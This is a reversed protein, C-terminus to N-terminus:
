DSHGGWRPKLLALLRRRQDAEVGFSLMLFGAFAGAIALYLLTSPWTTRGVLEVRGLAWCVSAIALGGTAPGLIVSRTFGAMGLGVRRGAYFPIVLASTLASAILTGAAVGALGLGMRILSVSLGVNLIAEILRTSSVVKVQLDAVLIISSIHFLSLVVVSAVMIWVLLDGGYNSAGVWLTVIRRSAFGIIVGGVIAIFLYLRAASAYTRRLIVDDKGGALDGVGPRLANGIRYINQRLLDPLRRSLVYVTVAPAGLFVGVILNDTNYIVTAAFRGVMGWSSFKLLERALKPEFHRPRISLEPALRKLKIVTLWVFVINAALAAIALGVLGSGLTLLILVLVIRLLQSALGILYNVHLRQHAVLLQDFTNLSTKVFWGLAVLGVAVVLVRADVGGTDIMRSLFPAVSLAIVLGLLGLAAQIILATSSLQNLEEAQSNRLSRSAYTMLAAGVGMDTLGIYGVVQGIIAWLGYAGQGIHRLIFPTILFSLAMLVASTGYGTGVALVAQKQRSISGFDTM